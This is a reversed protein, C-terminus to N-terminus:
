KQVKVEIIDVLEIEGSKMKKETGQLLRLPVAGSAVAQVSESLQQWDPNEPELEKAHAYAGTAEAFRSLAMCIAGLNGWLRAERSGFAMAQKLLDYAEVMHGRAFAADSLTAHPEYPPFLRLIVRAFRPVKNFRKVIARSVATLVYIAYHLVVESLLRISLKPNVTMLLLVERMKFRNAAFFRGQMFISESLSLALGPYAGRMKLATRLQAEAERYHGTHLLALGHRKFVVWASPLDKKRHQEIEDLAKSYEGALGYSTCLYIHHWPDGMSGAKKFYSQAEKHLGENDLLMGMAVHAVTQYGGKKLSRKAYSKGATIMAPIPPLGYNIMGSVRLALFAAMEANFQPNDPELKLADQLHKVGVAFSGTKRFAREYADHPVNGLGKSSLIRAVTEMQEDRVARDVEAQVVLVAGFLFALICLAGGLFPHVITLLGGVLGIFAIGIGKVIM